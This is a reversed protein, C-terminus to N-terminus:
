QQQAAAKAAEYRANVADWNILKEMFISIFDPRRNQVWFILPLHPM